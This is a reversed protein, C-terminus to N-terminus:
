SGWGRDHDRSCRENRRGAVVRQHAGGAAGCLGVRVAAWLRVLLTADEPLCRCKSTM